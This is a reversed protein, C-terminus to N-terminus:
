KQLANTDCACRLFVKHCKPCKKMDVYGAEDSEQPSGSQTSESM